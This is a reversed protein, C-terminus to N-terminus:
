RLIHRWNMQDFMQINQVLVVINGVVAPPLTGQLRRNQRIRTRSTILLERTQGAPNSWIREHFKIMNGEGKRQDLFSLKWTRAFSHAYTSTLREAQLDLGTWSITYNPLSVASSMVKIASGFGVLKRIHADHSSVYCCTCISLIILKQQGGSSAYVGPGLQEFSVIDKTLSENFNVDLSVCIHQFKKSFFHSYSKCFSSM